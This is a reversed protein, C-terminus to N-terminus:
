RFMGTIRGIVKGTNKDWQVMWDVRASPLEIPWYYDKAMYFCLGIFACVFIFCSIFAGIVIRKLKGVKM